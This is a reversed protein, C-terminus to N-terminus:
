RAGGPRQATQAPTAVDMFSPYGPSKMLKMIRKGEGERMKEWKINVVMENSEDTRMVMIEDRDHLSKGSGAAVAQGKVAGNMGAKLMDGISLIALDLDKAISHVRKAIMTSRPTEDMEEGDSLLAEYDIVVLKVGCEDKLRQLDVRLDMTSMQSGPSIYIPLATMREFAQVLIPWDSEKVRGSRMVHTPIKSLRSLTRRAVQIASMELSYYAGPYGAEAANTLVQAGLLSKGIGPEGTLLVVTGYQIGHTINDWDLFGTPVGYIEAPNAQAAEIQEWLEGLVDGIPVAGKVQMAQASLAEICRSVESAIDTSEDYAGKTLERIANLVNRRRYRDKVIGVYADINWTDASYTLLSLIHASGGVPGLQGRTDLEACVTTYDPMEGRAAIELMASLVWQNRETYFYGPKIAVKKLLTPDTFLASLIATEANPSHPPQYETM